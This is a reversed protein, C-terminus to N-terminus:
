VYGKRIVEPRGKRFIRRSKLKSLEGYNRVLKEIRQVETGGGWM